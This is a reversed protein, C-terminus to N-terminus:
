KTFFVVEYINEIAKLLLLSVFYQKVFGEFHDTFATELADTSIYIYLLFQCLKALSIIVHQYTFYM